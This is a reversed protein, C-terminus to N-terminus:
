LGPLAGTEPAEEHERAVRKRVRSAAPVLAAIIGVLGILAGLIMTASGTSAEYLRGNPPWFFMTWGWVMLAIGALTILLGPVVILVAGVAEFFRRM